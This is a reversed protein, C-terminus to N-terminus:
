TAPAPSESRTTPPAPTSAWAAKGTAWPQPAAPTTGIYDGAVVNGSTENDTTGTGVIHVGEWNNGSIVDGDGATTGGIINDQAGNQIVVGNFNPVPNSGTYDTGIFDGAVVNGNTGLDSIYVGNSGNGSLVDGSGPVSGGIINDTAGAYIAVGSQANPLAVTGQVNVGLYDGEVTNATAGNVIHVGDQYNGSIVDSPAGPSVAGITNEAAGNQILVGQYNPVPLLGTVDTGIFNGAVVNENTGSDSIYVGDGTNGSIVNGAGPLLGGVTTSTGGITNNAAGNQIVVGNNANPLPNSGTWDTGIFDGEM